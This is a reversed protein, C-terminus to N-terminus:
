ACIAGGQSTSYHLENALALNKKHSWGLCIWKKMVVGLM